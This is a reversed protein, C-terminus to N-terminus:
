GDHVISVSHVFATVQRGLEELDVHLDLFLSWGPLLTVRPQASTRFAATKFGYTVTSNGGIRFAQFTSNGEKNRM